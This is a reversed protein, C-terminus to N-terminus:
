AMTELFAQTQTRLKGLSVTPYGEEIFLVPLGQSRLYERLDPADFAHTDCYILRYAIIGDVDFEKALRRIYGFRNELDAEHSGPSERYTRPCNVKDLYSRALGALPNGTIDVDYWYPKTGFCLDDVVVNAGLEEVAEVFTADNNAVGAIMLRAKRREHHIERTRVESILEELLSNAESVPLSVVALMTKIMEGGSILPPSSKRFGYLQRVLQRQAAHLRVADRVDDDTIKHGTYRELSRRFMALEAELFKFSPASLTHPVNIFHAFAHDMNHSVIDYLKVINDCAHPTVFGDLFDYEGKLAMDLISRTYPCAIVELHKDAVTIPESRSGMIRFPVLRAATIIEVPTLSCLYGMIREGQDRLERARMGRDRYLDDVRTLSASM